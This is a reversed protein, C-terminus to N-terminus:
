FVSSLLCSHPTRCAVLGEATLGETKFEPDFSEASDFPSVKFGSSRYRVGVVWDGSGLVWYGVGLVWYGVGLVWYGIGVVWYGSGLVWYGSGLVWYGVGLM